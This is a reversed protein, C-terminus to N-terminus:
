PSYADLYEVDGGLWMLPPHVQAIGPYLDRDPGGLHMPAELPIFIGGFKHRPSYYFFYM